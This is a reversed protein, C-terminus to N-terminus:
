THLTANGVQRFDRFEALRVMCYQHYVVRMRDTHKAFIAPASALVKAQLVGDVDTHAGEAFRKSGHTSEDSRVELDDIVNFVMGARQDKTRAHRWCRDGGHKRGQVNDVLVRVTTLVEPAIGRM